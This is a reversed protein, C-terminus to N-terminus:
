ASRAESREVFVAVPRDDVATSRTAVTMTSLTTPTTITREADDTDDSM